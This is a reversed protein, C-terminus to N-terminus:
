SRGTQGLYVANCDKCNIQYIGSKYLKDLKGKNNVLFSSVERRDSSIPQLDYKRSRNNFKNTINPIYNTFVYPKKQEVSNVPYFQKIINKKQKKSNIQKNYQILTTDM